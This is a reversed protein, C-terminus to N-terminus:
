INSLFGNPPNSGRFGGLNQWIKIRPSPSMILKCLAVKLIKFFLTWNAIMPANKLGSVLHWVMGFIGNATIKKLFKWNRLTMRRSGTIYRVPNPSAALYESFCSHYDCYYRACTDWSLAIQIASYTPSLKAIQGGEVVKVIVFQDFIMIFFNNKLNLNREEGVGLSLWYQTLILMWSWKGLRCVLPRWKSGLNISFM